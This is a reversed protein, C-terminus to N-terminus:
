SNELIDVPGDNGEIALAGNCQEVRGSLGEGAKGFALREAAREPFQKSLFVRQV